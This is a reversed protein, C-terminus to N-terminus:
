GLRPLVFRASRHILTFPARGDQGRAKLTAPLIGASRNWWILLYLATKYRRLASAYARQAPYVSAVIALRANFGWILRLWWGPLGGNNKHGFGGATADNISISM